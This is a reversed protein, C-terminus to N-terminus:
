VRLTEAQISPACVENNGKSRCGLSSNIPLPPRLGHRQWVGGAGLAEQAQPLVPGHAVDEADVSGCM